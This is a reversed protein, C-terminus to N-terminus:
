RIGISTVHRRSCLIRSGTVRSLCLFYKRRACFYAILNRTLFLLEYKVLNVTIIFIYKIILRIINKSIMFMSIKKDM